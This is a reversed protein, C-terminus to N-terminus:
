LRTGEVEDTGLEYSFDLGSFNEEDVLVPKLGEFRKGVLRTV